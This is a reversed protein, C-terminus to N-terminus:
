DTHIGLWKRISINMAGRRDTMNQKNLAAVENTLNDIIINSIRKGDRETYNSPDIALLADNFKEFTATKTSSLQSANMDKFYKEINAKVRDKNHEFLRDQYKTGFGYTFYNNFAALQEGDMQGSCASARLHKIETFLYREPDIAGNAADKVFHNLVTRDIGAYIKGDKVNTLIEHMDIMNISALDDPNSPDLHDGPMSVGNIFSRLDIFKEINPSNKGRRIMNAKAWAWLIPNDQKLSLCTDALEKQIRINDDGTLKSSNNSLIDIIQNHDGRKSLVNIAAVMSNYDKNDIAETLKDGPISGPPTDDYLEFYNQRAEKDVKRKAAIADALTANIAKKSADYIARESANLDGGNYAAQEAATLIEGNDVKRAAADYAAKKQTVTNIENNDMNFTQLVQRRIDSNSNEVNDHIVQARHELNNLTVYRKRSEIAHGKVVAEKYDDNARRVKGLDRARVRKDTGDESFGEDFDILINERTNKNQMKTRETLYHTVGRKNLSGDPRYWDSMAKTTSKDKNAAALEATDFERKVRQNNLYQALHTSPLVPKRNLQRQRNLERNSNSFRNFTDTIPRTSRHMFGDIKGLISGSMKMMPIALFLPIVKVAIGLVVGLWDSASTIIVLGCLQSAGFLISFMPYFALMQFLASYWKKYWKETNPLMYAIIALPAAMVLLFIFAQRAAMTILASVISILGALLVPLLMWIISGIGGSVAIAVTGVAGIGLVQAIIDSVSMSAADSISGNQLAINQINLFFDQFSTGLINSVDVALTCIIYSLNVLIATIIIRPLTKKIGYNNIGIGTLQSFIIVLFFVVFLINTINRFYDWVIHIPSDTETPIPNVQILDNLINYAGDIIKGFLGAGPCVAWGLSGVQEYCTAKEKEQDDENENEKDEEDKTDESPTSDPDSPTVVTTPEDTTVPDAFVPGSLMLVGFVAALVSLAISKICKGMVEKNYCM